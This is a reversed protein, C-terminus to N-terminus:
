NSDNDDFNRDSGRDRISLEEFNSSNLTIRLGVLHSGDGQVQGAQSLTTKCDKATRATGTVRAL